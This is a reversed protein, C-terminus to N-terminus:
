NSVPTIPPGDNPLYQRPVCEPREPIREFLSGQQQSGFPSVRNQFARSPDLGEQSNNSTVNSSNTQIPNELSQQQGHSQFVTQNTTLSAPARPTLETGMGTANNGSLGSTDTLDMQSPEHNHLTLNNTSLVAPTRPTPQSSSNTTNQRDFTESRGSPPRSPSSSELARHDEVDIPEVKFM